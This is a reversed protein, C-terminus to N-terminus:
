IFQCPTSGMGHAQEDTKLAFGTVSGTAYAAGSQDDPDGLVLWNAASIKKAVEEHLERGDGNSTPYQIWRARGDIFRIEVHKIVRM